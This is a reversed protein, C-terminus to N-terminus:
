QCIVILKPARIYKWLSLASFIDHPTLSISPSLLYKSVAFVQLCCISPSLL